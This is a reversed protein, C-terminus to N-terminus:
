KQSDPLCCALFESSEFTNVEVVHLTVEDDFSSFLKRAEPEVVAKNLNAGAFLAIAEMSDWFTLATIEVDAETKRSLVLAGRHGPITRLKPTLMDKFFSFYTQANTASSRATFRRVIM